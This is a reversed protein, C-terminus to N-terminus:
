LNVKLNNLIEKDKAFKNANIYLIFLDASLTITVRNKMRKLIIIDQENQGFMKAYGLVQYVRGDKRHIYFEGRKPKPAIM